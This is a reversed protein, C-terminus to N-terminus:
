QNNGASDFDISGLDDFPDLVEFVGHWGEEGHWSIPEESEVGPGPATMVAGHGAARATGYESEPLGMPEREAHAQAEALTDFEGCYESGSGDSCKYVRYTTM